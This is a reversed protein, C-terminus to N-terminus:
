RLCSTVMIKGTEFKLFKKWLSQIEEGKGDMNDKMTHLLIIHYLIYTLITAIQIM